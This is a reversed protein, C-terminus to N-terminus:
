LALSIKSVHDAGVQSDSGHLHPAEASSQSNHRVVELALQQGHRVINRTLSYGDQFNIDPPM